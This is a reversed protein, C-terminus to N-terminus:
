LSDPLIETGGLSVITYELKRAIPDVSFKVKEKLKQELLYFKDPNIALFVPYNRFYFDVELVNGNADVAYQIGFVFGKVSKFETIEWVNFVERCAIYVQKKDLFRVRGMLDWPNVSQGDSWYQRVGSKTNNINKLYILSCNYGPKESVKFVYNEGKIETKGTYYDITQAEILTGYLMISAIIFFIKKM